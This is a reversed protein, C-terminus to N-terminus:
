HFRKKKDSVTVCLAMGASVFLLLYLGGQSHDKTRPSAAARLVEEEDEETDGDSKEAPTETEAPKVPDAPNTKAEQYVIAYSSFKDTEITITNPDDDKDELVDIEEDHIRIVAFKRDPTRLDEPIEMVIRVQGGTNHVLTETTGDDKQIIKILSIDLYRGVSFSSEEAAKQTATRDEDAVSESADNVVLRITINVGEKIQEKEESSLVTEELNEEDASVVPANMGISVETKVYGPDKEGCIVCVGNEYKHEHGANYSPDKEGCVTCVGAEYKHETKGIEETEEKKCQACTFTRIGTQTCAPQKTVKETFAHSSKEGAEGCQECVHWHGDKDSEYDENWVHEHGGRFTLRIKKGASRVCGLKM